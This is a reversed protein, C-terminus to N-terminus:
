TRVLIKVRADCFIEGMDFLTEDGCCNEGEMVDSTIDTLKPYNQSKMTNQSIVQFATGLSKVWFIIQM